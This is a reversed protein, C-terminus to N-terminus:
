ESAPVPLPTARDDPSDCLARSSGSTGSIRHRRAATPEYRTACHTPVTFDSGNPAPDRVRRHWCEHAPADNKEVELRQHPDDGTAAAARMLVRLLNALFGVCSARDIQLGLDLEKLRNGADGRACYVAKCVCRPTTNLSTVVFCPNDKPKRGFHRGSGGETQQHRTMCLGQTALSHNNAFM